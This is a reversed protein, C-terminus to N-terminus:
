HPLVFLIVKGDSQSLCSTLVASTDDALSRWRSGPWHGHASAARLLRLGGEHLMYVGWGGGRPGTSHHPGMVEQNQLVESGAAQRSDSLGLCLYVPRGALPSHSGCERERNEVPPSVRVCPDQLWSSWSVLCAVIEDVLIGTERSKFRM